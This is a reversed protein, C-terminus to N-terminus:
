RKQNHFSNVVKYSEKIFHRPVENHFKYYESLKSLLKKIEKITFFEELREYDEDLTLLDHM